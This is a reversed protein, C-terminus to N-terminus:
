SCDSKGSLSLWAFVVRSRALAFIAQSFTVRTQHDAKRTCAGAWWVRAVNGLPSRARFYGTFLHCTHPSSRTYHMRRSVLRAGRKWTALARSFLRHFPPVRTTLRKNLAHEPEVCARWTELHCARKSAHEKWELPFVSQENDLLPPPSSTVQSWARNENRETFCEPPFPSVFFLAQYFEEVSRRGGVKKISQCEVFCGILIEEAQVIRPICIEWLPLECFTM